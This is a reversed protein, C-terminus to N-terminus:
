DLGLLGLVMRARETNRERGEICHVREVFPPSALGVTHAGELSGLELISRPEGVWDFFADVRPDDQFTLEGGYDRGEITFRSHWPALRAFAREIEEPSRSAGAGVEAAVSGECRRAWAAAPRRRWSPWGGGRRRPRPASARSSGACSTPRRTCRWWTT